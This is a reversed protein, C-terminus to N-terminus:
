TRRLPNRYLQSGHVVLLLHDSQPHCSAFGHCLVQSPHVSIRNNAARALVVEPAAYCMTGAAPMAAGAPAACGLDIWRWTQTHLM